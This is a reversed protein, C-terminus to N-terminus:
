GYNEWEDQKLTAFHHGTAHAKLETLGLVRELARSPHGLPFCLACVWGKTTQVCKNDMKKQAVLPSTHLEKTPSMNDFTPYKTTVMHGDLTEM